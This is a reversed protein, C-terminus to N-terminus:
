SNVYYGIGTHPTRVIRHIRRKIGDLDGNELKQILAPVDSIHSHPTAVDHFAVIGGPRVLKHYLLWDCLVGAYSHDGDIFLADITGNAAEFAKRVVNPSHSSGFIFKSRGDNGCCHGGSFAAFNDVFVRCRETSMEITIVNEFLLRWLFHTSGFYGLGIEVITGTLKRKVLEAAFKSIETRVQQIAYSPAIDFPGHAVLDLPFYEGNGLQSVWRDLLDISQAANSLPTLPSFETTRSKLM